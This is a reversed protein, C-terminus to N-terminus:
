YIKLFCNHLIIHLYYCQQPLLFKIYKAIVSCLFGHSYFFVILLPLLFILIVFDIFTHKSQRREAKTSLFNYLTTIM